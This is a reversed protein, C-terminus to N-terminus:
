QYIENYEKIVKTAEEEAWKLAEEPTMEGNLMREIATEIVDRVQPFAGIVAGRTNYTQNSLLLQLLATLHNPHEAYYGQELLMEVADKRIPFYGTGTHWKIQMEPSAMFKVFEWAAKTEKDPHGGIIWLSAGGIVVGGSKTGKPRPLFATGLEFGNEKAMKAIYSVDSTSTILMAVKQSLFYQDAADWDEKKTNIMAGSKTLDYWLRFFRLGAKSNFIARTARGTRGNNNDVLPANQVAMFQEFFWAHLPWTIGAQVINGNADKVTLKKAYELLEEFTRPPHNPDLGAKKFLTKNYYLIPNSSNFPMSYLKGNVKYYNLVQPLFKGIDFSKDKDILEQMPVAIGGDIMVQTGIDYIQVIHPPNGAKVAAILKNLTDRYSGTYQVEVEIDPHLKMFEDAMSQILQIRWGSMAHWFQIKVKAFSLVVLVALLIVLLKKVFIGGRRLTKFYWLVM